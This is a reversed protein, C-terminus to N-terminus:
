QILLKSFEENISEFFTTLRSLDNKERDVEKIINFPISTTLQYGLSLDFQSKTSKIVKKGLWGCKERWDFEPKFYKDFLDEIEGWNDEGRKMRGSYKNFNSYSYFGDKIAEENFWLGTFYRQFSTLKIHYGTKVEYNSGQIEIQNKFLPSKGKKFLHLGQAKTNGPYIEVKLNGNNDNVHILIEDAWPVNIEWGLRHKLEMLKSQALASVIRSKIRRSNGMPSLSGIPAEPIWRYNHRKIFDVFDVLYRSPSGVAKEFNLVKVTLEMLKKWNLDVPTILSRLDETPIEDKDSIANYAQNFLQASCDHADPKVEFILVTSDIHISLDSIPNYESKPYNFFGAVDLPTESLSIAFLHNFNSLSKVKQQIDIQVQDKGNYDDFLNNYYEVKEKMIEKLVEHFFLNDEQLCIAFARTLDNELQNSRDERSYSKFLNLHSNM